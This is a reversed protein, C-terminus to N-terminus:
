EIWNMNQYKHGDTKGKRRLYDRHQRFDTDTEQSFTIKM